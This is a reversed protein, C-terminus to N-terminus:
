KAILPHTEETIQDGSGYGLRKLQHTHPDTEQVRYRAKDTAFVVLLYPHQLSPFDIPFLANYFTTVGTQLDIICGGCTETMSTIQEIPAAGEVVQGYQTFAIRLRKKGFLGVALQGLRSTHLASLLPPNDRQLDRSSGSVSRAQDLLAKLSVIEINSYLEEFTVQGEKRFFNLQSSNITYRM